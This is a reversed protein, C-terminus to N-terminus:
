SMKRNGHLRNGNRAERCRKKRKRTGRGFGERRRRGKGRKGGEEREGSGNERKKSHFPLDGGGYSMLSEGGGKTAWTFLYNYVPAGGQAVKHRAVKLIPQRIMTDIYLADARTKNPYAKLFEGVM